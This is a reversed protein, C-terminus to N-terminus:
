VRFGLLVAPSFGLLFGLLSIYYVLLSVDILATNQLSRIVFIIEIGLFRSFEDSIM